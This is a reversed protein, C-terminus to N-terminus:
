LTVRTIFMTPMWGSMAAIRAYGSSQNVLRRLDEKAFEGVFRFWTPRVAPSQGVFLRGIEAEQEELEHDERLANDVTRGERLLRLSLTISRAEDVDSM